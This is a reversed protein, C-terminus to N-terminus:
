ADPTILDFQGPLLEVVLRKGEVCLTEGDAHAPLVGEVATVTVNSSRLFQVAPHSAQTGNMFKPILAFIKGRSVEGAVCLDFVGDDCKSEPAMQFSGGMRRGNMISVMLTNLTLIQDDLEIRVKPATYFIYITKIAAVLYSMIGSLKSRTAVFGVVADFGIGVGNGFYRGEPFFESVVFGIDLPKRPPNKLLDAAKKWDTSIYMSYAFDNGRGIPLVGMVASGVGARKALMMGNIVENSTGDGGAAVIVEYGDAVARGTLEIAHGPRETEVLDFDLGIAKCYESIENKKRGASGKGATPNLIILTKLTM